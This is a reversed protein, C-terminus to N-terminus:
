KRVAVFGCNGDVLVHAGEPIQTTALNTGVVAPINFERAIIAAHCLTGGRDTVIAGVTPLVLNYAPSTTRAILVDGKSLKAFDSADRVIRARGQYCGPSAALGQLVLSSKKDRTDHNETESLYFLIASTIRSCASGPLVGPGAPKEGFTQPPENNAWSWWQEARSSLEEASPSNGGALLSDLEAPTTHFVDEVVRLAQRSVLREAASLVSRRLLGLPWHYTIRVDEDHLGYAVRAEALGAEFSPRQQPPVLERIRELRSPDFNKGPVPDLRSAIISLTVQPLERLTTDSIDFGTIIRDAYEDIFADFGAGIEPSIHRLRQLREKPYGEDGLVIATAASNSRISEVLGEIVPLHTALGSRCTQLTAIIESSSLGTAESTHLVWDGVPIMSAPQQLFHQTTGETFIEGLRVITERLQDMGLTCPDIRSFEILRKRLCDRLVPWSACDDRWLRSAMVNEATQERELLEQPSKIYQIRGYQRGQIRTYQISEISCGYREFGTRIGRDRASVVLEWLHNSVPLPFRSDRREWYGSVLGKEAAQKIM